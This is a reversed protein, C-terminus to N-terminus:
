VNIEEMKVVRPFSSELARNHSVVVLTSGLKETERFLLKLFADASDDDLASTPEDAIILEPATILARAAAVRQQQGISLETVRKEPDIKLDLHTLLEAARDKLEKHDAKISSDKSFLFPATINETVTLYPILNFQQFIFGIKDGRFRDRDVPKMTKPEKGLIKLEGRDVTNIGALLSLLTTKGCGSKGQLLLSEGREVQFDAIKLLPTSQGPWSYEMNNIEIATTM